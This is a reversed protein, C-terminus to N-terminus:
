HAVPADWFHVREDDLHLAQSLGAQLVLLFDGPFDEVVENDMLDVLFM